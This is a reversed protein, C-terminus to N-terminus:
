CGVLSDIKTKLYVMKLERHAHSIYSHSFLTSNKLTALGPSESLPIKRHCISEPLFVSCANHIFPMLSLIKPTEKQYLYLHRPYATSYFQCIPSYQLRSKLNEPSRKSFYIGPSSIWYGKFVHM